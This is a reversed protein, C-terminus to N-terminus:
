ELKHKRGEAELNGGWVVMEVLKTLLNMMLSSGIVGPAFLGNEHVQRRESFVRNRWPSHFGNRRRKGLIERM